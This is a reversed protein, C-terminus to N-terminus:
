GRAPAPMRFRALTSRLLWVFALSGGVTAVWLAARVGALTGLAGGSLAGLPRMGYNVAQFAGSVRSRLHGPIVAAFISGISIDLIMVGFGSVFEATFLLGLVVPAPGGALPVLITPAPFAIAGAVFAWGVGIRAALRRTIASGILGGVAGAGLVLGLPGPRVHLSRTVYLLFLAFFMFNFLNITAATVLSDRVVPSRMIFRAGATLGGKGARDAPPEAAQTRSLFFASGLFSLADALLAFPASLAQVLLGGASPGAMLSMARSGHLLANGEVYADKDVLAVFLAGDSVNFLISLTGTAFAVLYLQWISLWGLVYCVPITTLLGARGLDAAIMTVRRRGRRDAWVGLHLGFLLSPTWVLASLYGMQAAGAHLVLVAVLPLAIGSIQDGVLSVSQACWYRRFPRQHLLGPLWSRSVLCRAPWRSVAGTM